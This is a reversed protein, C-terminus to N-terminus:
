AAAKARQQARRIGGPISGAPPRSDEGKREMLRPGDVRRPARHEPALIAVSPFAAGLGGLMGIAASLLGRRM